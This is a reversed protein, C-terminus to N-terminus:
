TEFKLKFLRKLVGEVVERYDSIQTDSLNVTGRQHILKNRLDNYFAIKKWTKQGIRVYKKIEANVKHRSNFVTLLESDTYYHKSQENVLYEKFGIELTSDLIILTVRNGQELRKLKSVSDDAIISEYL